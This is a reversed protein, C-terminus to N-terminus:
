PKTLHANKPLFKDLKLNASVDFQTFNERYSDNVRQELTGFGASHPNASLSITGLDALNLDIRGLAAWGGHEDIVQDIEAMIRITESLSVVIRQYHSIDDESLTRGKRDKLWKECVQYGGIHFNWVNEPVGEFRQTTNIWVANDKWTAKKPISNDGKGTFTTIFNNVTTSELLHLAVLEGGIKALSSFLEFNSTLPIRPFDGMLEQGYEECYFPSYLIAYIYCFVQEPTANKEKLQEQGSYIHIGLANIFKNTFVKSFAFNPKNDLKYDFQGEEAYTYLPFLQTTRDHSGTKEEIPWRSVFAHCFPLRTVQRTAVLAINEKLMHQM